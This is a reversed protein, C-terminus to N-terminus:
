RRGCLKACCRRWRRQGRRCRRPRNRTTNKHGLDRTSSRRHTKRVQWDEEEEEGEEEKGLLSCAMALATAEAERDEQTADDTACYAKDREAKEANAAADVAVAETSTAAVERTVAAARRREQVIITAANRTASGLLTITADHCEARM